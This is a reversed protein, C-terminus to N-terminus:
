STASQYNINQPITVKVRTGPMATGPNLESVEVEIGAHFVENILTIRKKTNEMGLSHQRRQNATKLRQSETVGIGDDEIVATVVNSDRRIRVTLKGKEPRYRMGHWVANEVFPQILMPPIVYDGGELAADVELVYDYKDSFRSHELQM